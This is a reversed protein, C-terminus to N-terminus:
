CYICFSFIGPELRYFELEDYFVEFPVNHPRRLRGGPQYYAFVAEFTPRHRDLFVEDRSADYFRLRQLHDGLLTSPHRDLLSVFTEFHLGCVNIRIRRGLSWTTSCSSQTSSSSWSRRSTSRSSPEDFSPPSPQCVAGWSRRIASPMGSRRPAVTGNRSKPRRPRFRALSSTVSSPDYADAAVHLSTAVPRAVVTSKQRFDGRSTVAYGSQTVHRRPDRASYQLTHSNWAVASALAM